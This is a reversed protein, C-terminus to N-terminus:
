SGTEKRETPQHALCLERAQVILSRLMEPAEVEKFRRSVGDAAEVKEGDLPMSAVIEVWSRFKHLATRYRDASIRFADAHIMVGALDGDRWDAIENRLKENEAKLLDLESVLRPLHGQGEAWAGFEDTAEANVVPDNPEDEGKFADLFAEIADDGYWTAEAGDSRRVLRVGHMNDFLDFRDGKGIHKEKQM